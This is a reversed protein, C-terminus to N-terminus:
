IFVLTILQKANSGTEFIQNQIIAELFTRWTLFMSNYFLWAQNKYFIFFM